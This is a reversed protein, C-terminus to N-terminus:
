IIIKHWPLTFIFFSVGFHYFNHIEFNKKDGLHSFKLVMSYYKSYQISKRMRHSNELGNLNWRTKISINLETDKNKIKKNKQPLKLFVLKTKNVTLCIKSVNLCNM